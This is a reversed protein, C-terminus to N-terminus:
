AAGAPAAARDGEASTLTRTLSGDAEQHWDSLKAHLQPATAASPRKLPRVPAPPPSPPKAKNEAATDAANGSIRALATAIDRKLKADFATPSRAAAQRWRKRDAQSVPLPKLSGALKNLIEGGCREAAAVAAVAAKLRAANKSAIAAEVDRRSRAVAAVIKALEKAVDAEAVPASSTPVHRATQAPVRKQADSTARFSRHRGRSRAKATTIRARTPDAVKARVVLAEILARTASAQREFNALEERLRAIAPEFVRRDARGDHENRETM